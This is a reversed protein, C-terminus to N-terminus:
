SVEMCMCLNTLQDAVIGDDYGNQCESHDVIGEMEPGGFEDHWGYELYPILRAKKQVGGPKPGMSRCIDHVTRIKELPLTM